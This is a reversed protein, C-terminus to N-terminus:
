EDGREREMRKRERRLEQNIEERKARKSESYDNWMAAGLRLVSRLVLLGVVLAILALMGRGASRAPNRSVLHERVMAFHTKLSDAQTTGQKVARQYCQRALDLDGRSELLIGLSFWGDGLHPFAHVFGSVSEITPSEVASAFTRPPKSRFLM